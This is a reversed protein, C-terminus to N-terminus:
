CDVGGSGEPRPLPYVRHGLVRTVHRDGIHGLGLGRGTKALRADYALGGLLPADAQYIEYRKFLATLDDAAGEDMLEPKLSVLLDMGQGRYAAVCELGDLWSFFARNRFLTLTRSWMM